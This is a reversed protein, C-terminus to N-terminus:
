TSANNNLVHIFILQPNVGLLIPLLCIVCCFLHIMRGEQAKRKQGSFKHSCLLRLNMNICPQEDALLESYFWSSLFGVFPAPPSVSSSSHIDISISQLVGVDKGRQAKRDRDVRLGFQSILLQLSKFDFGAASCDVQVCCSCESWRIKGDEIRNWEILPSAFQLSRCSERRQLLLRVTIGVNRDCPKVLLFCTGKIKNGGHIRRNTM